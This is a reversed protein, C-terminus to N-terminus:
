EEQHCVEAAMPSGGHAAVLNKVEWDSAEICPRGSVEMVRPIELHSQVIQQGDPLKITSNFHRTMSM